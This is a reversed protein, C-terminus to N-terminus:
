LGYESWRESVQNKMEESMAIVPPWDRVPQRNASEDPTKPTADFGIRDRWRMADRGPDFNACWHFLATDADHLDVDPGLAIAFRACDPCKCEDLAEFVRELTTRGDGPRQKDIKVLLWGAGASTPVVVDLVGRVQRVRELCTSAGSRMESEGPLLAEAEAPDVEVGNVEEGAIKRTCDFGIKCGAALRPAAHDLIDLPGNVLEIDRAPKCRAGAAALTALADHVDVDHDVVFISKTWAMQGAGWIAHMVRRAQLPYEKRIKVVACNHFAGFMPLDYDEIDHIITKLLPLFLREVAKGMYYDEQPPLGVVTAPFIPKERMTVATVEMVPYRDPLSYFGTHDGFPGEFFAGPGLQEDGTRPDFGPYGAEDSVYGEIVIEANAPVRVPVSVGPCMPIGRGNLFGAMLLESIGPPLPAISAFPLVSEGGFVIAVPMRKGKRKWSRWHGAGDHHMHWHMALHRRGILQMRYMGINHSSPKREGVDDAHITHVGAFTIYRGKSDPDHILDAAEISNNIDGPYGVAELDGDLPWCKLLPLRTLDIDAGRWVVEQCPGGKVTKPPIRLLPAFRKLAQWAERPSRPPEPKILEGIRAGIADFGGPTRGPGVGPGAEHCDLAMEMRRYSGLANILVPIDSGAVNEFLLAHGGLHHFRPDNRQAAASPGHPAPSKSERDAIETIELVPSVEARVRRLEGADELTRVFEGLSRRM